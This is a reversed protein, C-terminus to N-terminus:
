SWMDTCMDTCMDICMDVFIDICTGICMDRLDAILALRVACAVALSSIRALAYLRVEHQIDRCVVVLLSAQRRTNYVFLDRVM